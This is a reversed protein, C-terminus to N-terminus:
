YRARDYLERRLQKKYASAKKINYFAIFAIAIVGIVTILVLLPNIKKIM